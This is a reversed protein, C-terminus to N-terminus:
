HRSGVPPPGPHACARCRGHPADIQWIRLPRGRCHRRGGTHSPRHRAPHGGSGRAVLAHYARRRTRHRPHARRPSGNSPKKLQASLHCPSRCYLLAFSTSFIFRRTLRTAKSTAIRRQAAASGFDSAFSCSVTMTASPSLRVAPKPSSCLSDNGAFSSAVSFACPRLTVTTLAPTDPSVTEAARSRSAQASGGLVLAPMPSSPPLSPSF